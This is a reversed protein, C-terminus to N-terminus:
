LYRELCGLVIDLVVKVAGVTGVLLLISITGVIM